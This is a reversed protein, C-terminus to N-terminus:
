GGPLPRALGAAPALSEPHKLARSRQHMPTAPVLAAGGEDLEGEHQGDEDEEEEGEDVEAPEEGLEEVHLLAGAFAGAQRDHVVARAVERRRVGWGTARAAVLDDPLDTRARTLERVRVRCHLQRYRCILVEGGLYRHRVRR